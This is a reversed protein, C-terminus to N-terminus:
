QHRDCKFALALDENQGHVVALIPHVLRPEVGHVTREIFHVGGGTGFRQHCGSCALEVRVAEVQLRQQGGPGLVHRRKDGLVLTQEGPEDLRRVDRHGGAVSVSEGGTRHQGQAVVEPDHSPIAAEEAKRLDVDADGEGGAHVGQDFPAQRLRHGMLHHHLATGTM